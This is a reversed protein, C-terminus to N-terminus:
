IPSMKEAKGKFGLLYSNYSCGKAMEIVTSPATGTRKIVDAVDFWPSKMPVLHARILDGTMLARTEYTPYLTLKYTRGNHLLRHKASQSLLMNEKNMTRGSSDPDYLSIIEPQVSSLPADVMTNEIWYKM